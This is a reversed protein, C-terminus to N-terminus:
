KKTVELKGNEPKQTDVHVTLEYSSAGSDVSLDMGSREADSYRAPVHSKVPKGEMNPPTAWCEVRLKYAGPLLGDGPDFSTVSFRGEADFDGIGPRMTGAGADRALTFYVTGAAPPRKGDFLVQGRVPITRPMGNDCGAFLAVLMALTLARMM